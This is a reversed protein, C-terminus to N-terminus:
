LRNERSFVFCSDLGILGALRFIPEEISRRCVIKSFDRDNVVFALAGPV